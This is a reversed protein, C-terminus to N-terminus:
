DSVLQDNWVKLVETKNPELQYRQHGDKCLIVDGAEKVNPDICLYSLFREERQSWDKVLLWVWFSCLIFRFHDAQKLEVKQYDCRDHNEFEQHHDAM